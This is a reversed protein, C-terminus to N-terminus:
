RASIFPAMSASAARLMDEPTGIDIYSGPNFIVHDIKLDTGIAAQIVDGVFLEKVARLRGEKGPGAHTARHRAVFHHMFRTFAATWVAIIWTYELETHQPKIEIARVRGSGDLDVMDNKQPDVAPFLGLVLDASSRRQRALLQV